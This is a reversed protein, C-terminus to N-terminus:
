NRVALLEEYFDAYRRVMADISFGALVRERAASGHALRLPPNSVYQMVAAELADDNGHQYLIGTLGHEVLEPNGGVRAAVVPRASSM